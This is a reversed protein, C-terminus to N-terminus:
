LLFFHLHKLLDKSVYKVLKMGEGNINIGKFFKKMCKMFAAVDFNRKYEQM